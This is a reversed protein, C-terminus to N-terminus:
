NPLILDLMELVEKRNNHYADFDTIYGKPIEDARILYDSWPRTHGIEIEPLILKNLQTIVQTPNNKSLQKLLSVDVMGERFSMLRLSQNLGQDSRYYFWADGPAHKQTGDPLPGLSTAYEDPVGRYTNVAWFLYGSCNYKLALLPWLRNETLPRDIHRNPYPPFPSTTNYLWVPKGQELRTKVTGNKNIVIGPLNYVQLGVYDSFLAPNSNTADISKIGPMFKSMLNNYYKYEDIYTGSPEDYLHFVFRDHIGTERLHNDLDRLFKEQFCGINVGLTGLSKKGGTAVDLVSLNLTSYRLHFGSFYKFGIGSFLTIWRDFRSYDFNFDNNEWRAQILPNAENVLPTYMMNNGDEYLLTGARELLKWHEESWWAVQSGNKRLDVPAASMWHVCDLFDNRSIIAKHVKFSVPLEIKDTLNKTIVVFGSYVGTTCSTPIKIQLLAGETLNAQTVINNGEVAPAVVELLNFPANRIFYPIWSAPYSGGPENIMSGQTNGECTIQQLPRVAFEFDVRSGNSHKMDKLSITYTSAESSKVALQLGMTYNRPVSITTSYSAEVPFRDPFLRYHFDLLKAEFSPTVAWSLMGIVFFSLLLFVRYSNAKLM